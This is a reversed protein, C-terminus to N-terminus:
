GPGHGSALAGKNVSGLGDDTGSASNEPCECECVGLAIGLVQSFGGPNAPIGPLPWLKTVVAAVVTMKTAVTVAEGDDNLLEFFKRRAPVWRQSSLLRSETCM